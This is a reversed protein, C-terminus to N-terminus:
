KISTFITEVEYQRSGIPSTWSVTVTIKSMGTAPNNAIVDSHVNFTENAMHETRTASAIDDYDLGRLRELEEQAIMQAASSQRNNATARMSNAAMAAVGSAVIAFLTMACLVEM